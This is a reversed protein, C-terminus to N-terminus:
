VDRPNLTNLLPKFLNLPINHSQYKNAIVYRVAKKLKEASDIITIFECDSIWTEYTSRIKHNSNEFVVCPTRTIYAFIMGHLRDTVVVEHLAIEDLLDNVVQKRKSIDSFWESIVTDSETIKNYDDRLHKIIKNQEAKKVLKEKDKRLLTIAGRRETHKSKYKLSFVMDPMLQSDIKNFNKKAFDYSVQERTFLTANRLSNYIKRSKILAKENDYYISQPLMVIASNYFKPLTKLRAEEENSWITGMNGGGHWAIFDDQGIEHVIEAAASLSDAMPIEIVERKSYREVFQKTTEAIAQDGLNGHQPVGFIYIKRRPFIRRFGNKLTRLPHSIRDLIRIM